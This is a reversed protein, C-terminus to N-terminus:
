IITRTVQSLLETTHGESRLRSACPELGRKLMNKKM